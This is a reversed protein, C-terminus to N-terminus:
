LCLRHVVSQIADKIELTAYYIGAVLMIWDDFDYQTEFEASDVQSSNPLLSLELAFLLEFFSRLRPADESRLGAFVGLFSFGSKLLELDLYTEYRHLRERGGLMGPNTELLEMRQEHWEWNPTGSLTKRAFHHNLKLLHPASYQRAKFHSRLFRVALLEQYPQLINPDDRHGIASAPGRVVAWLCLANALENSGCRVTQVIATRSSCSKRLQKTTTGLSLGSYSEGCSRLATGPSSSTYRLM